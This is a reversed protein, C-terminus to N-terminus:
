FYVLRGRVAVPAGECVEVMGYWVMGTFETPLAPLSKSFGATTTPTIGVALLTSTWSLRLCAQFRFPASSVRNSWLPVHWAPIFLQWTPNHDAGSGARVFLM